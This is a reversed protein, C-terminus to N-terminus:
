FSLILSFSPLRFFLLSLLFSTVVFLSPFFFKLESALIQSPFFTLYFVHFFSVLFWFVHAIPCPIFDLFILIKWASRSFVSILNLDKGSQTPVRLWTSYWIPPFYRKKHKTFRSFQKGRSLQMWRYFHTFMLADALVLRLHSPSSHCRSSQYAQSRELGFGCCVALATSEVKCVCNFVFGTSNSITLMVASTSRYMAGYIVDSVEAELYCRARAWYSVSSGYFKM